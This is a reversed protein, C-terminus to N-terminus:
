WVLIWVSCRMYKNQLEHPAVKIVQYQSKIRMEFQERSKFFRKGTLIFEKTKVVLKQSPTSSSPSSTSMSRHFRLLSTLTKTSIKMTM